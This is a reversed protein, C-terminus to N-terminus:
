VFLFQKRWLRGGIQGHSLFKFWFQHRQSHPKSTFVLLCFTSLSPPQLELLPLPCAPLPSTAKTNTSNQRIEEKQLLLFSRLWTEVNWHDPLEGRVQSKTLHAALSLRKKGVLFFV